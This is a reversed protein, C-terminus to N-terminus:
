RVILNLSQVFTYEDSYQLAQTLKYPSASMVVPVVEYSSLEVLENKRKFTTYALVSTKQPLGYYLQNSVFNGLSYFVLRKKSEGLEDELTVFEASQLVHPHAGMILDAGKRFFYRALSKQRETPDVRKEEGWHPTVIVLDAKMKLKMEKILAGLYEQDQGCDAVYPSQSFNVVDTCAIWATRVGEVDLIKYFGESSNLDSRTGVHSLGLDTLVRITEWLGEIGRDLSHNNATSVIDFGSDVLDGALRSPFNFSYQVSQPALHDAMPGELNGYTIHANKLDPLLDAWLSLFGETRDLGQRRLPQHILIDGVGLIKIDAQAFRLSISIFFIFFIFKLFRLKARM